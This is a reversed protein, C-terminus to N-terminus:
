TQYLAPKDALALHVSADDEAARVCAEAVASAAYGDWSSPGNTDGTSIANVWAQLENRYADAFRARFDSAVATSETNLSRLVTSTPPCLSVTGKEGVVECRVDYGYQANVFVEIDVTVGSATRLVLLRPDSMGKTALSSTRPTHATVKEIEDSLLWRVTDIEHVASNTIPMEPTFFPLATANRHVCHVMLPPGLEGSDLMRKMEVYSPDFRRMYGLQVLRRGLAAEREVVRLCGATTEALPKECLVPKREELAALVLQEHTADPSAVLVADVSTDSILTVPDTYVAVGDGGVARARDTDADAVAVLRAGAVSSTLAQVHAAGMTGTGIVGIHVTM